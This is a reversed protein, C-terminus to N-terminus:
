YSQIIRKEGSSIVMSQLESGTLSLCWTAEMWLCHLLLHMVCQLHSFMKESVKKREQKGSKKERTCM